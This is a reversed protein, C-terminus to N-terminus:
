IMYHLLYMLLWASLIKDALKSHELVEVRCLYSIREASNMKANWSMNGRLAETEIHPSSVRLIYKACQTVSLSKDYHMALFAEVRWTVWFLTVIIVYESIETSWGRLFIILCLTKQGTESLKEVCWDQEGCDKGMWPFETISSFMYDTQRGLTIEKKAAEGASGIVYVNKSVTGELFCLQTRYDSQFFIYIRIFSCYLSLTNKENAASQAEGTNAYMKKKQNRQFIILQLHKVVGSPNSCKQPHITM